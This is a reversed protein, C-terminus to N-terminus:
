LGIFLHVFSAPYSGPFLRQRELDLRELCGDVM